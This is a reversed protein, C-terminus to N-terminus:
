EISHLRQRIAVYKPSTMAKSYYSRLNKIQWFEEFYPWFIKMHVREAIDHAILSAAMNSIDKTPKLDEGLLGAKIYGRLMEKTLLPAAEHEATAPEEVIEAKEEVVTAEEAQDFFTGMLKQLAEPTVNGEINIEKHNDNHTAGDMYIAKM